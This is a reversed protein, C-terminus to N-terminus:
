FHFRIGLWVERPKQYLSKLRIFDNLFNQYALNQEADDIVGDNNLDSIPSYLFPNDETQSGGGNKMPYVEEIKGPFDASGTVPYYYRARTFNFINRVDMFVTFPVFRNNFGKQLRLDSNIYWPHRETNYGGVFEGSINQNTYPTGSELTFTMCANLNQLPKLDEIAPGFGNPLTLNAIARFNHRRDFPLYYEIQTSGAYSRSLRLNQQKISVENSEKFDAGPEVFSLTGKANSYTYSMNLGFKDSLQGNLSLEFGNVRSSSSNSFEPFSIIGLETLSVGELDELRKTYGTIDFSLRESAYFTLGSEFCIAWQFNLDPNGDIQSNYALTGQASGAYYSHFTTPQYYTGFNAHAVIGKPLELSLGLRPSLRMKPNVDGSKEEFDLLNDTDDSTKLDIYYMRLGADMRFKNYSITAAAYGSYDFPDHKYNDNQYTPEEFSNGRYINRLAYRRADGGAKLMIFDNVQWTTNINASYYTARTSWYSDLVGQNVFVDMVGYPNDAGYLVPTEHDFEPIMEYGSKWSSSATEDKYGRSYRQQMYEAAMEVLLNQSVTHTIRAYAFNDKQSVSPLGYEGTNYRWFWLDEDHNHNGYFGAVTIKTNDGLHTVAKAFLNSERLQNHKYDTINEGRPDYVELGPTRNNQTNVRGSLFLNIGKGRFKLPGGGSFEVIKEGRSNLAAGDNKGNLAAFSNKVRLDGSWKEGSERTILNVIGSMANGLSSSFGGTFIQIEKLSLNNILAGSPLSGFLPDRISVGDIQYDIESTRGGRVFANDVVGPLVSMLDLINEAPLRSIEDESIIHVTGTSRKGVDYSPASVIIVEDLELPSPPMEIDVVTELGSSVWIDTVQVTKFGIASARLTYRGVPVGIIYFEGKFNTSAGKDTGELLINVSPLLDGTEADIVRGVIKGTLSGGSDLAHLNPAFCCILIAAACLISTLLSRHSAANRTRSIKKYIYQLAM